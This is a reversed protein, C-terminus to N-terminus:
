AYDFAVDDMRGRWYVQPGEPLLWEVEGRRPVLVGDCSEYDSWRGQWATPVGHGKVDRMRALTFVSEVLGDTGFRFDLTVTTAGVTLSARAAGDDLALWRVGGGPLLATPLLVAEALYRHLSGAAVEPTGRASALTVLGLLTARMSGQGDRFSDVVHVRLGPMLRIRADWLFGPPSCTFTEVAAFPRWGEATPRMLFEGTQRVRARAIARQGDPLVRRFYRAVPAPLPDLEEPAMPDVM